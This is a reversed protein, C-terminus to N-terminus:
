LFNIKFEIVKKVIQLTTEWQKDKTVYKYCKNQCLIIQFLPSWHTQSNIFSLILPTTNLDFQFKNQIKTM